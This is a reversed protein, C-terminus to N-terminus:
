AARSALEAKLEDVEASNEQRWREWSDDTLKWELWETADPSPRYEPDDKFAHTCGGHSQHEPCFYLGCGHEGGYPESDCCVHRLGRDIEAACGPYDCAAPVGYGIDRRWHTDYGVAWGMLSGGTEDGLAGSM